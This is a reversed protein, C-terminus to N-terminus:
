KIKKKLKGSGAVIFQDGGGFWEAEKIDTNV